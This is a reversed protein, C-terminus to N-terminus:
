WLSVSADEHITILGDEEDWSSQIKEMEIGSFSLTSQSSESESGESSEDEDFESSHMSTAAFFSGEVIPSHHM